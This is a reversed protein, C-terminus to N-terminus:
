ILDEKSIGPVNKRLEWARQHLMEQESGIVRDMKRVKDRPLKERTVYYARTMTGDPLLVACWCCRDVVLLDSSM